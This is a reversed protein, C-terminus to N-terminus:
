PIVVSPANLPLGAPGTPVSTVGDVRAQVVYTGAPVAARDGELRTPPAGLSAPLVFSAGTATDNLVIALQQTPAPAVSLTVRVIGAPATVNTVVPRIVVPVVGSRFPLVAPGVGTPREHVVQLTSIGARATAPVALRIVDGTVSLIAAPPLAVGALEVRLGPGSLDRGRLLLQSGPVIPATPQGAPVVARLIPGQGPLLTMGRQLVPLAQAALVDPEVLVVSAEYVVSLSFAGSPLMSWIRNLDDDTLPVPRLRVYEPQEDLDAGALAPVAAVAAAISAPTLVPQTHLRSTAVGLLQQPELDDENGFFSLLYWLTLAAMPVDVLRGNGDRTPADQNRLFPNPGVRYLYVDVGATVAGHAQGPPGAFAQANQVAAPWAAAAAQFANDIEARLTATVAAVALTNSV